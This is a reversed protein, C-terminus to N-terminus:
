LRFKGRLVLVFAFWYSINESDWKVWFTQIVATCWANSEQGAGFENSCTTSGICCLGFNWCQCEIRALLICHSFVWWKEKGGHPGVEIIFSVFFFGSLNLHVAISILIFLICVKRWLPCVILSFGRKNQWSPIRSLSRVAHSIEKKRGRLSFVEQKDM